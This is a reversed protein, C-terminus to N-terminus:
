QYLRINDGKKLTESVYQTSGKKYTMIQEIDDLMVRLYDPKLLFIERKKNNMEEEYEYYTVPNVCDSITTYADINSDYFTVTYSSTVKLKEPLIITDNSNKVLKTEYHRIKNLEEYSKYKELLYEDFLKQPMPWESQLNVINNSILIVWDLTSEGYYKHAINDPREDGVILYQQFFELKGDIDPRLKARRFFNKVDVYQSIKKADPIRSVYSFDPIQRFYPTAM